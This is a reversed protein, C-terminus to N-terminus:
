QGRGRPRVVVDLGLRRLTRFVAEVHETTHGREIESLYSRHLDAREALQAQTMGGARRYYAIVEGLASPGHVVWESSMDQNESM